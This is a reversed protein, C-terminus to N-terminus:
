STAAKKKRRVVKSRRSAKKGRGSATRKRRPKAAPAEGSGASEGGVVARAGVVDWVRPDFEYAEQTNRVVQEADPTMPIKHKAGAARKIATLSEGMELLDNAHQLVEIAKLQRGRRGKSLEELLRKRRRETRLDRTTGASRGSLLTNLARATRRKEVAEPSGRRNPKNGSSRSKAM